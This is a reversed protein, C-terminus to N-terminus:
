KLLTFKLRDIELRYLDYAPTSFFPDIEGEGGYFFKLKEKGGEVKDLKVHLIRRENVSPNFVVLIREEKLKRCFVVVDAEREDEGRCLFEPVELEGYSLAAHERRIRILKSMERYLPSNRNLASLCTGAEFMAERICEDADGEGDFGQETGYYICPIGPFALMLGVSGTLQLDNFVAGARQKYPKEIQDHNDLFTVLPYKLVSPDYHQRASLHRLYLSLADEKGAVIKPLLFHLPFDLCSDPGQYNKREAPSYHTGFFASINEDGGPVEAFIFFDDKGLSSAYEKIKTSFRGLPLAGLHKSADMRFGDCDTERIWYCYIRYLMEQVALGEPTEDHRFKRLSFFDGETTEPHRDWNRIMGKRHYFAPNKLESPVPYRLDRWSGFDHVKGEQYEVTDGKRYRWNNGSHNIVCDLVVRLGKDHAADILSVLDEMTGFRPDVRLFNRIDYGHYSEPNNEFVPSLWLATCGLDVLYSLNKRIGNLTGGCTRRLAHRDGYGKNRGQVKAPVRDADDHFRDALLFYIVEEQWSRSSRHYKKGPVPDLSIEHISRIPSM